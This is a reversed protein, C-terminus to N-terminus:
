LHSFYSSPGQAQLMSQGPRPLALLGLSTVWMFAEEKSKAMMEFARGDYEFLLSYGM